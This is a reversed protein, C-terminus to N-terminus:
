WRSTPVPRVRGAIEFVSELSGDWYDQILDANITVWAAVQELERPQLYGIVQLVMPELTLLSRRALNYEGGPTVEVTAGEESGGRRLWVSLELGTLVPALRVRGGNREWEPRPKREPVPAAEPQRAPPETAPSPDPLAPESRAPEAVPSEVENAAPVADGIVAADGRHAAPPEPPPEDVQAPVGAALTDQEAAEAPAPSRRLEVGDPSVLFRAAPWAARVADLSETFGARFTEAAAAGGQGFRQQLAAWSMLVARDAEVEPLNAALWAYADLAPASGALTTVVQGDLAVANQQLSAFFRASLHLVPRWASPGGRSGLRRADLVSLPAGRGEATVRLRAALLRDLQEQLERLRPPTVDLGLSAAVSAADPGIEAAASGGRLAATFIHLILLRLARGAPLPSAEGAADEAGMAVSTGDVERDWAVGRPARLPLALGCFARHQWLITQNRRAEPLSLANTMSTM